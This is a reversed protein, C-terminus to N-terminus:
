RPQQNLNSSAPAIESNTPSNPVDPATQVEGPLLPRSAAPRSAAQAQINAIGQEYPFAPSILNRPMDSSQTQAMSPSIAVLPALAPLVTVLACFAITRAVFFKIAHIM